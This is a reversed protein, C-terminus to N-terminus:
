LAPRPLHIAWAGLDGPDFQGRRPGSCPWPRSSTPATSSAWCTPRPSSAWCCGTSAEVVMAEHAVGSSLIPLLAGIATGPRVKHVFLDLVAEVPGDRGTQLEARRVMSVVKRESDVVPASRLDHARMYALASEATQHMCILGCSEM